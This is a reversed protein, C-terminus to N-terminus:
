EVTFLLWMETYPTNVLVRMKVVVVNRSTSVSWSCSLSGLALNTSSFSKKCFILM